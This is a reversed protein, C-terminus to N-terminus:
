LREPRKMTDLAWLLFAEHPDSGSKMARETRCAGKLAARLEAATYGRAWGAHNKVRWDPMKLVRALENPTGRELLARACLLERIRTTCMALLAHPSVSEMRGLCWLAKESNRASFADVFDWPKVEATRAVLGLVEHETVPDNGRHAVALKRLENDLAVTSEGVQEVLARAAGETLAIGHTVAMARVTRPLEYRKVPACDIVASKGHKAVAKYLRTNKALKVATLALVTTECPNDLYAVLAESDAKKLKDADDVQVLRVDSAFPVTNCAAVVDDGTAADGAFRDTNFAIDGSAELRRHLREMVTRRKLEDEGVVLYVPLLTDTKQATAMAGM